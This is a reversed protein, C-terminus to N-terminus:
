AYKSLWATHQRTGRWTHSSWCSRQIPKGSLSFRVHCWGGYLWGRCALTNNDRFTVRVRRKCSQSCLQTSDLCHSKTRPLRRWTDNELSSPDLFWSVLISTVPVIVKGRLYRAGDENSLSDADRSSFAQNIQPYRWLTFSWSRRRLTSSRIVKGEYRNGFRPLAPWRAVLRAILALSPFAIENNRINIPRWICTEVHSYVYIIPLRISERDWKIYRIKTVFSNTLHLICHIHAM